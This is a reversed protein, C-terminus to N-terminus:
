LYFNKHQKELFINGIDEMLDYSDFCNNKSHCLIKLLNGAELMQIHEKNAFQLRDNNFYHRLRQKDILLRASDKPIVIQYYRGSGIKIGLWSFGKRKFSRLERQLSEYDLEKIPSLDLKKYEEITLEVM